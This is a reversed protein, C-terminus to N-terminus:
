TPEEKIKIFMDIDKKTKFEIRRRNVAEWISRYCRREEVKNYLSLNFGFSIIDALELGLYRARKYPFCIGAFNECLRINFQQEITKFKETLDLVRTKNSSEEFYIEFDKINANIKRTYDTLYRKLLEKYTIELAYYRNIDESKYRSVNRLVSSVPEFYFSKKNGGNELYISLAKSFTADLPRKIKRRVTSCILSRKDVAITLFGFPINDIFIALEKIFKMKYKGPNHFLDHSHIEVDNGLYKYKLQCYYSNYEKFLESDTIVGTLIFFKTKKDNFDAVGSEDIYIIDRNLSITDNPIRVSKFPM